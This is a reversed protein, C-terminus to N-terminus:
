KQVKLLVSQAAHETNKRESRALVVIPMEMPKVWPEAYIVVEREVQDPLVLIGNLGVHQVRVGHPLGRVDLPVRGKHGSRREIKVMLRAETGPRIMLESVSTTTALDGSELVSPPSGTAERVVEQGDIMARAEVKLSPPKDPAPDTGVSLAVVATHQGAEIRTAPAHFPAPLEVFKISIPGNYGDIRTATISVPVAGGKWVKPATPNIRVAFDPRPPRITLRYANAAGGARNTDSIRVQYVGDAPPDFMVQSDKGFGPGGDDNCFTLPFLPMGNPPFTSGPPHIDVKYMPTGLAHHTPTTDLFGVRKDDVQYFQCDDDPNRPLAKIRMLEGGVYLLDDIALENWYELRIGPGSSNHDRFTVFTKATCRLVARPVPIGTKDLIEVFSDVTSGLRDANVEVILPQGKRAPFKVM